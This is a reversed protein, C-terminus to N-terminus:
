TAEPFATARGLIRDVTRILDPPLCPKALFADCGLNAIREREDSLAHATLAVIPVHKVRPDSKLEATAQWGDMGPLLLDMLILDPSASRALEVAENGTSAEIVDYGSSRLCTSYLERADDFDEVLLIRFRDLNSM